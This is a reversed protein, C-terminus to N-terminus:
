KEKRSSRDDAAYSTHGKEIHVRFKFRRLLVLVITAIITLAMILTPAVIWWEVNASGKPKTEAPPVYSETIISIHAYGRVEDKKKADKYNRQAENFDEEEIERLNISSIFVDATVAMDDNGFEVVLALDSQMDPRVYFILEASDNQNSYGRMSKIDANNLNEFGGDFGDLKFNVGCDFKTKYETIDKGDEDRKIIYFKNRDTISVRITYEYFKGGDLSETLTNTVRTQKSDERNRIELIGNNVSVNTFTPDDAKFFKKPDTLDAKEANAPVDDDKDTQSVNVNDIFVVSAPCLKTSSGMNFSLTAERPTLGSDKIAFAYKEWGFQALNFAGNAKQSLDIRAIERGRSEVSVWFNFGQGPYYQHALDFEIVNTVGTNLTFTNSKLTQWTTIKNQMMYINNNIDKGSINRPNFAIGYNSPKPGTRGDTALDYVGANASQAWHKPETNVIGSLIFDEDASLLEWANAKLPYPADVDQPAGLNFFANTISVTPESKDLIFSTGSEEGGQNALFYDQSVRQIKFDSILMYDTVNQNKSGVWFEIDVAVDYYSEGIIYAVNRAWGNKTDSGSTSINKATSDFPTIHKPLEKNKYRIDRMHVFCSSGNATLTYYTIMYIQHRKVVFPKDLKLSANGENAALLMVNGDGPNNPLHIDDVFEFNLLGPIRATSVSPRVYTGSSEYAPSGHAGQENNVFNFTHVEPLAAETQKDTNHPDRPDVNLLSLKDTSKYNKKYIEKNNLEIHQKLPTPKKGLEAVATNYVARSVQDIRPNQFYIVGRSPNNKSGLYLGLKFSSESLEDTKILFQATRWSSQNEAVNLTGADPISGDPLKNTGDNEYPTDNWGGSSYVAQTLNIRPNVGNDFEETPILYFSGFSKVAYFDVSVIYYSDAQFNIAESTFGATSETTEYIRNTMVFVNNERLSKNPTDTLYSLHGLKNDTKWKAFSSAHSNLVGAVTSQSNIGDPTWSAISSSYVFSSSTTGSSLDANNINIPKTTFARDPQKPASYSWGLDESYGPRTVTSAFVTSARHLNLGGLAPAFLVGFAMTVAVVFAVFRFRKMMIDLLIGCAMFLICCTIKKIAIGSKPIWIFKKNL